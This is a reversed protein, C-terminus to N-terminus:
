YFINALVGNFGKFGIAPSDIVVCLRQVLVVEDLPNTLVVGNTNAALSLDRFSDYLSGGLYRM